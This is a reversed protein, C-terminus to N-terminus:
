GFAQRAVSVLTEVLAQENTVCRRRFDAMCVTRSSHGECRGISAHLHLMCRFCALSAHLHLICTLNPRLTVDSVHDPLIGLSTSRGSLLDLYAWALCSVDAGLGSGDCKAGDDRRPSNARKDAGIILFLPPSPPRTDPDVPLSPFM